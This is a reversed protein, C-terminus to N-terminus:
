PTNATLMSASTPEFSCLCVVCTMAAESDASQQMTRVHRAADAAAHPQLLRAFYVERWSMLTYLVAVAELGAFLSLACLPFCVYLVLM